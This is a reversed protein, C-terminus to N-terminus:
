KEFERLLREVWYTVKVRSKGWHTFLGFHFSYFSFSSALTMFISVLINDIAIFLNTTTQIKPFFPYPHDQHYLLFHFFINLPSLQESQLPLFFPSVHKKGNRWEKEKGRNMKKMVMKKMGWKRQWSEKRLPSVFGCRRQDRRLVKKVRQEIWSM